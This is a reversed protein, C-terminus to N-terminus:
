SNGSYTRIVQFPGEWTHSWKGLFRLKKEIPLIIKLVLEGVNFFKEKIRRNYSRAISEKQRIMNALALVRESDLENLEDFIANWYDDVSLDNQRSVRLTNLNIELPLIADHGYVLKFPSTGTSGRPSNRYAWLVQSLTEHWTRPRNEIHKKILSILIKNAAEVQGNAHNRYLVWKMKKGDQHAGCIGNHVEGLAINQDNQGLCRSLSGDIDKKYLEDAMLIFNIAQLKIKRDVPINPEKLYQAIPKRWDTDVWEDVCLVERESAPVLIQNIGILSELTGSGIKYKSTIQASKNAIENQIRPIHVLSVKQFSTLLEWATTLYKQLRENNCKFEKSLQKLVLQSNGLIQVESVGKSILIELGLILAEYEAEIINAGQDNLDKLKDVLFEAIVQGKMVKAPVYQLDFETLTLMWKGLRGRTKIDTLVRSLYYVAREQGNEDDQALMCGITDKSASIYLWHGLVVFLLKAVDDEAIFIQNYGSYRDMFSLIENGAASDILMDTIPMCYEDKPTANNLDRFDICVRLKGNKKMVLVIDSVWEVYRATRIFKAKILREIEEKIKINFEPAFQRPTQKVPQANPKLALRHEVLSRDLGPMEHYDWAFCDPGYLMEELAKLFSLGLWNAGFVIRSLTVEGLSRGFVLLMRIGRLTTTIHFPCLHSMQKETPRLFYGLEDEIRIFFFVEEDESDYDEDPDGEYEGLYEIPIISITGVMDDDGDDFYEEDVDVDKNKDIGSSQAIAKGKEMKAPSPVEKPYTEGDSPYGRARGRYYSYQNRSAARHGWNWDKIKQQVLFDLLGDGTRPYVSRVQSEFDELAVDFDYSMGVMNVGFCPEVYSADVEFPDVDVKMEKKGDDFKLQGEM